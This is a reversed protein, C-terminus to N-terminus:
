AFTKVYEKANEEITEQSPQTSAGYFAHTKIIECGIYQFSVYAFSLLDELKVFSDYSEKPGGTSAAFGIKKEKLKDGGPGFAWGYTLVEDIYKKLGFPVSFWHIPFQFIITDYKLLIEQEKQVDFNLDPYVEYLAHIDFLEPYKKLENIWTKNVNSEQINPHTLIVLKKM